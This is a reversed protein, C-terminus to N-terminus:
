TTLKQVSELVKNWGEANEPSTTGIGVGGSAILAIHDDADNAIGIEL